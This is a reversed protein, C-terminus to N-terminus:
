IFFVAFEEALDPYEKKLCELMHQNYCQACVNVQKGCKKCRKNTRTKQKFKETKDYFFLSELPRWDVINQQLCDLCIAETGKGCNKCKTEPM